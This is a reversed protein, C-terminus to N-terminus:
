ALPQGRTEVVTFILVRVSLSWVRSFLTALLCARKQHITLPLPGALNQPEPEQLAPRALPEGLVRGKIGQQPFAKQAQRPPREAELEVGPVRFRGPAL